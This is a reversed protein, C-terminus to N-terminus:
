YVYTNMLIKERMVHCTFQYLYFLINMLNVCDCDVESIFCKINKNVFIAVGGYPCGLLLLEDVVTGSKGYVHHRQFTESLRM